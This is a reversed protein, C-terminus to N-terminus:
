RRGAPKRGHAARSKHHAPPMADTGWGPVAGLLRTETDFLGYVRQVKNGEGDVVQLRFHPVGNLQQVRIPFYGSLNSEM